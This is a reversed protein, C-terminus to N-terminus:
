YKSGFNASKKQVPVEAGQRQGRPDDYTNSLGRAKDSLPTTKKIAPIITKPIKLDNGWQGVSGDAKEVMLPNTPSLPKSPDNASQQMPPKAMATTDIPKKVMKKYVSPMVPSSTKNEM